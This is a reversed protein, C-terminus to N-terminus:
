VTRSPGTIREMVYFTFSHADKPGKEYYNSSSQRWQSWDLTPFIVDGTVAADVRTLYIRSALPLAQAFIDAGGIVVIEGAGRIKAFDWARGIADQYTHAVVAGPASFQLDRTVVINDRGDLAGPLSAFTKRGMILPKGMTNLRFLKLDSSLRWPLGGDRGIVGNEDMAVMLAIVPQNEGGV